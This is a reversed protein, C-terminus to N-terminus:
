KFTQTALPLALHYVNGGAVYKPMMLKVVKVSLSAHTNHMSFLVHALRDLQPVTILM